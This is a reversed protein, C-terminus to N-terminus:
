ADLAKRMEIRARGLETLLDIFRQDGSTIRANGRLDQALGVESAMFERYRHAAKLVPRTVVVVAPGTQAALTEIRRVLTELLEVHAVMAARDSGAATMSWLDEAALTHRLAASLDGAAEAQESLRLEGLMKRNQNWASWWVSSALVALVALIVLGIVLETHGM